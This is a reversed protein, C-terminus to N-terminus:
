QNKIDKRKFVVYSLVLLILITVVNVILANTFTAYQNGSIGGYMYYSMDWTFFPMWAIMQPKLTLAILDGGLYVGFGAAIAAVSNTSIVGVFLVILFIILYAPMVTIFGYLCQGLVSVERAKGLNFDYIVNTGFISTFDNYEYCNIILYGVEYILVFVMVAIFGAIIKSTLIKGRSFPKILLQKITGKNFEESVISGIIIVIACIILTDVYAFTGTILELMFTDTEIMDNELRYLAVHYNEVIERNTILENRNKILSEDKVASQYQVYYNLYDDIFQSKSSYSYPINNALRYNLCWLNVKLQDLSNQLEKNDKDYLLSDEVIKINDEVAVKEEEVLNKWNFTNLKKVLEDIELQTANVKEMDKRRFEYNYKQLILPQIHTDIYYKEPSLQKYDKSIEYVDIIVRDGIYMDLGYEDELDYTDLKDKMNEIFEPTYTGNESVSFNRSLFSIGFMLSLVIATYVYIAKKSFIKILENRVLNIL